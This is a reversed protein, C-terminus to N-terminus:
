VDEAYDVLRIEQVDQTWLNPTESDKPLMAETYRLMGAVTVTHLPFTAHKLTHPDRLLLASM